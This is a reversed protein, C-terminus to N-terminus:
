RVELIGIPEGSFRSAVAVYLGANSPDTAQALQQVGGVDVSIGTLMENCRLTVGSGPTLECTASGAEGTITATRGTADVAGELSVQQDGGVLLPPMNYDVRLMGGKIETQVGALPYSTEPTSPGAPVIYVSSSTTATTAGDSGGAAGGSGAPVGDGAAAGDAPATASINSADTATAAGRESTSQCAGLACALMLTSYRLM